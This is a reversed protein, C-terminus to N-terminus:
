IVFLHYLLYAGGGWVVGYLCYQAWCVNGEDAVMQFLVLGVVQTSQYRFLGAM